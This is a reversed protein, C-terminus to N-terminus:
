LTKLLKRCIQDRRYRDPVEKWNSGNGLHLWDGIFEVSHSQTGFGDDPRIEQYGHELLPARVWDESTLLVHLGSGADCGPLGTFDPTRGDLWSASFFCLGPWLWQIEGNSNGMGYFGAEDLKDILTTPQRPFVDHDIVGWYEAKIERAVKTAMALGPVHGHSRSPVIIYGVDLRRATSEM